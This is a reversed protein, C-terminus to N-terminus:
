KRRIATATGLAIVSLAAAAYSLTPTTITAAAEV